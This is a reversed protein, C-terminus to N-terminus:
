RSVAAVNLAYSASSAGFIAVRSPMKGSRWLVAVRRGTATDCVHNSVEVCTRM